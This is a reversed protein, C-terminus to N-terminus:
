VNRKRRCGTRYYLFIEPTKLHHKRITAGMGRPLVRPLNEVLGGGTIHALASIYPKLTLFDRM